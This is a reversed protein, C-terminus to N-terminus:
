KLREIPLESSGKPCAAAGYVAEPMGERPPFNGPRSLFNELHASSTKRSISYYDSLLFGNLPGFIVSQKM